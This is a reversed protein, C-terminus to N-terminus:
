YKLLNTQPQLIGYKKKEKKDSRNRSREASLVKIAISVKALFGYNYGALLM